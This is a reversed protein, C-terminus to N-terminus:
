QSQDANEHVVRATGSIVRMVEELPRPTDHGTLADYTEFSTLQWIVNVVEADPTPTLRRLLETLATRRMEDRERLLRDLDPDLVAMGRLRRIVLRDSAWFGCFTETFASLAASADPATFARDLGMGARGALSDFLAELLGSKSGFANYVSQRSVDAAKAVADVSIQPASAGALLGRAAALMRRRTEEAAAQRKTSEYRRPSM